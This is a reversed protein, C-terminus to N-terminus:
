YRAVKCHFLVLIKNKEPSQSILVSPMLIWGNVKTELGELKDFTFVDSDIITRWTKLELELEEDLLVTLQSPALDKPFPKLFMEVHTELSKYLKGSVKYM